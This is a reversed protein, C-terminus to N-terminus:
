ARQAPPGSGATVGHAAREATAQGHLCRPTQPQALLRRPDIDTGRDLCSGYTGEAIRRRALHIEHLEALDREVEADAVVAQAESGAADKADSVEGPAPDEARQRVAAIERRHEEERLRLRSEISHLRDNPLM